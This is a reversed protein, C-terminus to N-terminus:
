VARDDRVSMVTAHPQFCQQRVSCRSTILEAVGQGKVHVHLFSGNMGDPSSARPCAVHENLVATLSRSFAGRVATAGVRQLRQKQCRMGLMQNSIHKAQQTFSSSSADYLAILQNAGLESGCGYRGRSLTNRLERRQRLHHKAALPRSDNIGGHTHMRNEALSCVHELANGALLM